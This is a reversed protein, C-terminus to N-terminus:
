AITGSSGIREKLMEFFPHLNNLVTFSGFVTALIGLTMTVGAKGLKAKRMKSVNCIAVIGGALCCAGIVLLAINIGIKDKLVEFERIIFNVLTPSVVAVIMSVLAMPFANFVKGVPAPEEVPATVVPEPVPEKVVPEVKKEVSADEAAIKKRCAACFEARGRVQSGCM